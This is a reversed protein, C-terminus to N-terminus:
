NLRHERRYPITETSIVVSSRKQTAKLQKGISCWWTPPLNHVVALLLYTLIHPIPPTTLRKSIIGKKLGLNEIEVKYSQSFEVNQIYFSACRM